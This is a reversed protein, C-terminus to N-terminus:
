PILAHREARVDSPTRGLLKKFCRIMHSQDFFGAAAAIDAGPAETSRLLGVANEVRRRQATEALGEGVAARYVEALYVPHLGTSRALDAARLSPDSGLAHQVRELWQPRRKERWVLALRLFRSTAEALDEELADPASWLRALRGAALGVKGGRWCRVAGLGVGPRVAGLWSPDFAIDIQELGAAGMLNAHAEGAGHFVASPGEIATEGGDFLKRCGGIVYLSLVPWDHSHEAVRSNPGEVIRAAVAGSFRRIPLSLGREVAKGNSGRSPIM